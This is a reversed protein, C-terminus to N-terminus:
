NGQQYGKQPSGDALPLLIHFTVGQDRPAEEMDGDRRTGHHPCPNQCILIKGDHADVIRHALSLGLGTGSNKTTFFPRFIKEVDGPAIGSGTDAISIMAYEPKQPYVATALTLCGGCPMAQIANHVLNQFVQGILVADVSLPPLDLDFKKELQIGNGAILDKLIGITEGLITEIRQYSRSLKLTKTYEVLETVVQNLNYIGDFLNNFIEALVEPHEAVAPRQGSPPNRKGSPNDILGLAKQLLKTGILINGLPNRVQHAIASSFEGLLALDKTKEIELELRKKETIDRGM